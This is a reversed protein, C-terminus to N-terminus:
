QACRLATAAVYASWLMANQALSQM